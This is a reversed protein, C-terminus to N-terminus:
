TAPAGSEGARILWAFGTLRSNEQRRVKIVLM